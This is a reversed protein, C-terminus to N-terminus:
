IVTTLPAQVLILCVHPQGQSFSRQDPLGSQWVLPACRGLAAGALGLAIIAIMALALNMIPGALAVLVM